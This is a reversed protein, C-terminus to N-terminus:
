VYAVESYDMQMMIPPLVHGGETPEEPIDFTVETAEKINKVLEEFTKGQTYIGFEDATAIYFGDEGKSIIFTVIKNATM